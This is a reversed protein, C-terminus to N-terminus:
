LLEPLCVAASVAAGGVLVASTAGFLRLVRSMSGTGRVYDRTASNTQDLGLITAGVTSAVAGVCELYSMPMNDSGFFDSFENLLLALDRDRLDPTTGNPIQPPGDGGPPTFEGNLNLYAGALDGAFYSLWGHIDGHADEHVVGAFEHTGLIVHGSAAHYTFDLFGGSFTWATFHWQSDPSQPNTVSLTVWGHDFPESLVLIPGNSLGVDDRAKAEASVGAFAVSLVVYAMLSLVFKPSQWLRAFHPILLKNVVMRWLELTTAQRRTLRYGGAALFSYIKDRWTLDMLMTSAAATNPRLDIRLDLAVLQADVALLAVVQLGGDRQQLAGFQFQRQLELVEAISLPRAPTRGSHHLDMRGRVRTHVM